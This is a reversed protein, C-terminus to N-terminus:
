TFPDATDQVHRPSLAHSRSDDNINRCVKRDSLHFPCDGDPHHAGDDSPLSVGASGSRTGNELSLQRSQGDASSM